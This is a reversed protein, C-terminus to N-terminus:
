DRQNPNGIYITEWEAWMDGGKKPNVKFKSRPLVPKWSKMPQVAIKAFMEEMDRLRLPPARTDHNRKEYITTYGPVLSHNNDM